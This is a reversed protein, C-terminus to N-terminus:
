DQRSCTVSGKRLFYLVHLALWNKRGSNGADELKKGFDTEFLREARKDSVPRHPIYMEFVAKESPKLFVATETSGLPRGDLKSICFVRGGPYRSFGKKGDHIVSGEELFVRHTPVASRFWAYGPTSSVNEAECKIYIVTEEEDGSGQEMIRDYLEQQETTFMHGACRGDAIIYHTGKIDATDMRSYELGAFITFHYKVADDDVCGRIIPLYGKDLERSVNQRCGMGRGMRYSYRAPEENLEPIYVPESHFYPQIVDWPDTCHMSKGLHSVGMGRFGASFIRIDRSIGLWAPCVLDRTKASASMYSAETGSSTDGVPLGELVEAYSRKDDKETIMVGYAPIIAPYERCIHDPCFTFTNKGGKITIM